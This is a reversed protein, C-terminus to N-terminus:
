NGASSGLKKELAAARPFLINNEKHVHQHMDHELHALRQLMARYSNCAEAPPTFGSTLNRMDFLANGAHEHELEMVQIPNEVTGCHFAPLHKAKELERVMPFLVCEEKQMHQHLEGFFANFIQEVQRLHPQHDGHVRAVKAVLEALRPLEEKLYAHHTREIHDCLETLPAHLWDKEPAATEVGAAADFAQLLRYVTDPDLGKERCVEDLTRKGGCCYDIELKEFVRSRSPSEAVLQGITPKETQTTNM